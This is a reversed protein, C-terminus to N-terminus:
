LTTKRLDDNEVRLRAVEAQEKELEKRRAELRDRLETENNGKRRKLARALLLSRIASIEV